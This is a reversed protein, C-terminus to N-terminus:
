DPKIVAAAFAFAFVGGFALSEPSPPPWPKFPNIVGLAVIGFPFGLVAAGLARVARNEPRLWLGLAVMLCCLLSNFALRGCSRLEPVYGDLLPIVIGLGFLLGWGSAMWKLIQGTRPPQKKRTQSPRPGPPAYLSMEGRYRTPGRRAAM